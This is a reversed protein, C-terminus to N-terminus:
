LIKFFNTKAIDEKDKGQVNSWKFENVNEGNEHDTKQM